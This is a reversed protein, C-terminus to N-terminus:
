EIIIKPPQQQATKNQRIRKVRRRQRDGHRDKKQPPRMEPSSAASGSDISRAWPQLPYLETFSSTM